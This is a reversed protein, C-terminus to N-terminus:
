HKANKVIVETSHVVDIRSRDGQALKLATRWVRLDVKTTTIAARKGPTRSPKKVHSAAESVTKTHLRATDRVKAM